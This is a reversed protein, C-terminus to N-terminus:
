AGLLFFLIAARVGIAFMGALCLVIITVCLGMIFGAWSPIVENHTTLIVEKHLQQYTIERDLYRQYSREDFDESM